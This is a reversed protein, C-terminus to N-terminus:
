EKAQVAQRKGVTVLHAFVDFAIRGDDILYPFFVAEANELIRDIERETLQAGLAPLWGRLDAEIM